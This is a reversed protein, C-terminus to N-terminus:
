KTYLIRQQDCKARFFEKPLKIIQQTGSPEQRCGITLGYAVILGSIERDIIKNQGTNQHVKLHYNVSLIFFM